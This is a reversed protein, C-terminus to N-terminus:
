KSSVNIDRILQDQDIRVFKSYVFCVSIEIAEDSISVFDISESRIIRPWGRLVLPPRNPLLVLADMLKINAPGNNYVQVEFAGQDTFTGKDLFETMYTRIAWGVPPTPSRMMEQWQEFSTQM